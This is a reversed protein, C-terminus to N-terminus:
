SLLLDPLGEREQEILKWEAQPRLMIAEVRRVLKMADGGTKSLGFTVRNSASGLVGGTQHLCLAQAAAIGRDRGQLAIIGYLLFRWFIQMVIWSRGYVRSLGM